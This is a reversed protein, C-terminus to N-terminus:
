SGNTVLQPDSISELGVPSPDTITPSLTLGQSTVLQQRYVKYAHELWDTEDSSYDADHLAIILQEPVTHQNVPRKEFYGITSQSLCLAKALSTPNFGARERLYTLPHTGVPPTLSTFDGLLRANNQRTQVQFEEYQRILSTRSVNFTGTFFTLLTPLPDTYMGQELRLVAHKTVGARRALEYQSLNAKNRIDKFPNVPSRSMLYLM